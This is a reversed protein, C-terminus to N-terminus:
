RRLEDRTWLNEGTAVTKIAQILQDRTCVKLLYGSARPRRRSRCVYPQESYSLMLIPLDPKDLKIRGL